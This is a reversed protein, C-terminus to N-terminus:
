AGAVFMQVAVTSSGSDNTLVLNALSASVPWGISDSCARHVFGGSTGGRVAEAPTTGSLWGTFGNSAGPSFHASASGSTSPIVAMFDRIGTTTFTQSDPTQLFTVTNANVTTTSTGTINGTNFNITVSGSAPLVIQPATMVNINGATSGQGYAFSINLNCPITFAGVVPDNVAMQARVTAQTSSVSPTNNDPM